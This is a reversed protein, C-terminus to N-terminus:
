VDYPSRDDEKDPGDWGIWGGDGWSPEKDYETKSDYDIEPEKDYDNPVILLSGCGPVQVVVIDDDLDLDDLM